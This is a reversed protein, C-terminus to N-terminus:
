SLILLKLIDGSNSLKYGSNLSEGFRKDPSWFHFPASAVKFLYGISLIILAINLYEGTKNNSLLNTFINEIDKTEFYNSLIYIGDLNTIGTNIYLISSGLLILCSSLGGLLFYTLGASTSLESNRYITSLIYIGYSQLEIALFMSVLDSSSILLTSGLLIFLIILPYEIQSNPELGLAAIYSKEGYRTSHPQKAPAYSGTLQLIIGGLLYIFIELSQTISTCQFLGGYISLGRDSNVIDWSDYGIISSYLLIMFAVRNYLISKDRRLCVANALLLLLLSSLLM